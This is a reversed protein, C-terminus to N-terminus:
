SQTFETANIKNFLCKIFDSNKFKFHKGNVTVDMAAEVEELKLAQQLKELQEKSSFRLDSRLGYYYWLFLIFEFVPEPELGLKNVADMLYPHNLFDDYKLGTKKLFRERQYYYKLQWAELPIGYEEWDINQIIYPVLYQIRKKVIESDDTFADDIAKDFTSILSFDLEDRSKPRVEKRLINNFYTSTTEQSPKENIGNERDIDIYAM